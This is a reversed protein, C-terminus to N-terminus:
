APMMCDHPNEAGHLPNDHEPTLIMVNTQPEWGFTMITIQHPPPFLIYSVGHPTVYRTQIFMKPLNHVCFPVNRHATLYNLSCFPSNTFM